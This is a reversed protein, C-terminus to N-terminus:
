RLVRGRVLVRCASEASVAREECLRMQSCDHVYAPQPPSVTDTWTIHFSTASATLVGTFAIFQAKQPADNDFDTIASWRSTTISGMRFSLEVTLYCENREFCVINKCFLM